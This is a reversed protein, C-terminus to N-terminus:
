YFPARGIVARPAIVAPGALPNKRVTLMRPQLPNIFVKSYVTEKATNTKHNNKKVREEGAGAWFMSRFLGSTAEPVLGM